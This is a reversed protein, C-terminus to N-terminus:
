KGGDIVTILKENIIQLQQARYAIGATDTPMPLADIRRAQALWWTQDTM